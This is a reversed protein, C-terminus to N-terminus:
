SVPSAIPSAIPTGTDVPPAEDGNDDGDEEGEGDDPVPTAAPAEPEEAEAQPCEGESEVGILTDGHGEHAPVARESITIMVTDGSDDDTVHCVNVKAPPAEAAAEAGDVDDEAETESNGPDAPPNGNEQGQGNNGNGPNEPAEGNGQSNNGNGPNEPPNGNEQGQGQGNNGTGPATQPNEGSQGQGNSKQAFLPLSSNLSSAFGTNVSFMSMAAVVVFATAVM